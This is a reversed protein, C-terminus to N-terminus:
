HSAQFLAYPLRHRDAWVVWPVDTPGIATEVLRWRGGTRTMLAMVGDDIVAAPRDNALPTRAWNILRGDPRRLKASAYAWHGDTRLTEVVFQVSGGSAQEVPPRLTDLLDKRDPDGVQPTWYLGAGASAPSLFPTPVSVMLAWVLSGMVFGLMLIRMAALGGLTTDSETCFVKAVAGPFTM